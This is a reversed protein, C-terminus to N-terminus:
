RIVMPSRPLVVEVSHRPITRTSAPSASPGNPTKATRDAASGSRASAPKPASASRAPTAQASASPRGRMPTPDFSVGLEVEAESSDEGEGETRATPPPHSASPHRFADFVATNFADADLRQKKARSSGDTSGPRAESDRARKERREIASGPTVPPPPPTDPREYIGAKARSRVPIEVWVRGLRKREYREQELEKQRREEGRRREAHRRQFEASTDTDSVPETKVGVLHKKKSKWGWNMRKRKRQPAEAPQPTMALQEMMTVGGVATDPEPGGFCLRQIRARVQEQRYASHHQRGEVRHTCLEDAHATAPLPPLPPLAPPTPADARPRLPADPAHQRVAHRQLHALTPSAMDCELFPCRLRGAVHKASLHQMLEEVREFCPGGCEGWFCRYVTGSEASVAGQAAHARKAVHRALRAESALVAGCGKWGCVYSGLTHLLRDQTLVSAYPELLAPGARAVFREPMEEPRALLLPVNRFMVRNSGAAYHEHKKRSAWRRM